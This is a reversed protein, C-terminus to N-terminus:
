KKGEGKLQDIRHHASKTSEEVRTLREGMRSIQEKNARLDIKIDDVGRRIYVLEAKVEASEQTDTKVGKTRNLQYAQYSVVLGLFAIIVGWEIAM